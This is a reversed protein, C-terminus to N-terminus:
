KKKLDTGLKKEAQAILERNYLLEVQQKGIVSLLKEVEKELDKVRNYESGDSVLIPKPRDKTGYAKLWKQISYPRVEYLAAIQKVSYEGNEILAVQKKKFEESFRRRRREESTM